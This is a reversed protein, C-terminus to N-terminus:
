CLTRVVVGMGCEVCWVERGGERRGERGGERGGGGWWWWRSTLAWKMSVGNGSDDSGCVGCVVGMGVGWGGVWLFFSSSCCCCSSSSSSVIFFFLSFFFCVCVCM